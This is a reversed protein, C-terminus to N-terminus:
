NPCTTRDGFSQDLGHIELFIPSHTIELPTFKVFVISGIMLGVLIIAKIKWPDKFM